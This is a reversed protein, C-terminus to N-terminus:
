RSPIETPPRAPEFRVGLYQRITGGGPFEIRRIAEEFARVGALEWDPSITNMPEFTLPNVLVKGDLAVAARSDALIRGYQRRFFKAHWEALTGNGFWLGDTEPYQYVFEPETLPQLSKRVLVTCEGDWISRFAEIRLMQEGVELGFLRVHRIKQRKFYEAALVAADFPDLSITSIQGHCSDHISVGVIPIHCPWERWGPNFTGLLIIADSTGEHRKLLQELRQESNDLMIGYHMTLEVGKQDACRQIGRLAMSCYPIMEPVRETHQFVAFNLIKEGASRRDSVYLGAGRRAEVLGKEKLVNLARQAVNEKVNYAAALGRQTPLKEGTRLHGGLIKAELQRALEIYVHQYKTM